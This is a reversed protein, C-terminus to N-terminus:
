EVEVEDIMGQKIHTPGGDRDQIFCVFAYKGPRLNMQLVQKQGGDLVPTGAAGAFDLPPEEGAPPEEESGLFEEAEDLSAGPQLPFAQVHHLEEGTNDFEVEQQGAKLGNTRFGYEFADIKASSKPLDGSAQDGTVELEATPPPGESEEALQALVYHRGPELVQTSTSTQGPPVAAAGGAGHIWDPIPGGESGIVELVEEVSHDGDVRILQLGYPGEGDNTFEVTVQGSPVDKVGTLEGEPSLGVALTDEPVSAPRGGGGGGGGGGGCAAVGLTAAVALAGVVGQM